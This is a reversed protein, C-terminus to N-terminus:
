SHKSITLRVLYELKVIESLEYLKWNNHDRNPNISKQKFRNCILEKGIVLTESDYCIKTSM